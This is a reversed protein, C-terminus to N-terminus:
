YNYIKHHSDFLYDDFRNEVAIAEDIDMDIIKNDKIGVVRSQKGEMLLEVARMGMRTAIMRDFASPAGGRQVYGLTISKVDFGTKERIYQCVDHGKAAGEAVIIISTMDGKIRRNQLSVCIDDLSFPREPVIVYESESAIASTLAIDGCKNGMVEIVGIREHSRMTDRIKAVEGIVCNVATDFGITYDTYALDNDITGPIGIAPIGMHCLERAGMFSGDGGIVVLGEVGFAKLVQVAKKKGEETKMEPCRATKLITGGRMVINRIQASRIEALRGNILGDYGKTVGLVAMGNCKASTVVAHIAANMGPTDGGSTLVAIRRM